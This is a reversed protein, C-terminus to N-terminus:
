QSVELHSGALANVASGAVESRFRIALNGATAGTLITGKILASFTTAGGSATGQVNGDLANIVGNQVTGAATQILVSALLTSGVPGNIGLGIGTTTAAATYFIVAEFYYRTSAVVPHVLDTIDAATILTNAQNAAKLRTTSSGGSGAPGKINGKKAWPM